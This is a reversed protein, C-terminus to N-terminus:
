IANVFRQVVTDLFVMGRPTLWLRGRALRGWGKRSLWKIQEEFHRRFGFGAIQEFGAVSIGEQRRLGLMLFEMLWQDRDLMETVRSRSPRGSVSPATYTKLDSRNWSRFVGDFSHAGPGLGLYPRHGWYKRNHRSRQKLGSAFNSIEYHDYGRHTLHDHTNLFLDALHTDGPPRVRGSDVQCGLPTGTEFTLMYCSMHAPQLDLAQDMDAVWAHKPRGPIGYILDLGLDDFGARRAASLTKVAGAGDHIRGLFALTDDQFSQVGVNLRNIGLRRLTKLDTEDVTGPNVEMTVSADPTISFADHLAAMVTAVQDASLVSPTGGGFYLTDVCRRRDSRERIERILAKIYVARLSLDTVSFFDCYGCKQVCFPVHVYVGWAGSFSRATLDSRDPPLNRGEMEDITKVETM